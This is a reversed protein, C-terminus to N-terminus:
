TYSMTNCVKLTDFWNAVMVMGAVTAQESSEAGVGQSLGHFLYTLPFLLLVLVLGIIPVAVRLASDM